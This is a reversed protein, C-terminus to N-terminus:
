RAACTTMNDARACPLTAARSLATIHCNMLLCGFSPAAYCLTPAYPPMNILLTFLSWHINSKDRRLYLPSMVTQTITAHRGDTTNILSPSSWAHTPPAYAFWSSLSPPCQCPRGFPSSWCHRASLQYAHHAAIPISPSSLIPRTAVPRSAYHFCHYYHRSSMSLVAPM